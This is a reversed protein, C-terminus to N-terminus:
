ACDGYNPGSAAEAALPLGPAWPPTISMEECLMLKFEQEIEEPVVYVLDDHVQHALLQRKQVRLAAQMTATRALGQIVNEWVKGGYLKKTKNGHDYVWEGFRGRGTEYRLNHYTIPVGNPLIIKQHRLTLPGYEIGSDERALLPIHDQWWKWAAAIKAFRTRYANVINTCFDLELIISHGLNVFSKSAIEKKFKPAGVMFGLGLIANKGIFREDVNAKTIPRHYINETAFTSYIDKGLRFDEVLDDQGSLWAVFRAEIQSADCKVVKRKPPAKHARRLKGTEKTGDPHVTYKSWNQANLKWDGSLRSTHAGAYRLPIPAWGQGLNGRWTVQSIALLRKARTEEITSKNGVRAAVLAQVAPDDHEALDIMAPDSKAFAFTEKEPNAPSPKMPPEVGLRSLAAAFKENSMVDTKDMLGCRYLLTQKNTELDHAYSALMEQDLQFRPIVACRLVMDMILYEEAPFEVRCHKFIERCLWGDHLGYDIYAPELGEDRIQQLRKGAVMPLATGKPPLGLFNACSELSVRGNKMRPLLLVRAMGMSDIMLDPVFGYVWALLSMDFLANHSVLTIKEGRQKRERWERLLRGLDEPKVWYPKGEDGEAVALGHMEFKHHHLYEIPTMNRLSYAPTGDLGKRAEYFTEADVTALM